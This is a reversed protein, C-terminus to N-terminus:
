EVEAINARFDKKNHGFDIHVDRLYKKLEDITYKYVVKMNRLEEKSYITIDKITNERSFIKNKFSHPKVDIYDWISLLKAVTNIYKVGEPNNEKFESWSKILALMPDLDNKEMEYKMINWQDIHIIFNQLINRRKNPVQIFMAEPTFIEGEKVRNMSMSNVKRRIANKSKKTMVKIM